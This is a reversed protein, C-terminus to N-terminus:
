RLDDRLFDDLLIVAAHGTVNDSVPRSRRSRPLSASFDTENARLRRGSPAADAHVHGILHEFDRPAISGDDGFPKAVRVDTGLPRM